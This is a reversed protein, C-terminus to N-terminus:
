RFAQPLRRGEIERMEYAEAAPRQSHGVQMPRDPGYFYRWEFPVNKMIWRAVAAMDEDSGGRHGAPRDRETWCANRSLPGSAPRIRAKAGGPRSAASSTTTM